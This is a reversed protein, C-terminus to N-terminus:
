AVAMSTAPAVRVGAQGGNATATAANWRRHGMKITAMADCGAFAPLCRMILPDRDAAPRRRDHAGRVRTLL